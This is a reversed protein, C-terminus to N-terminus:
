EPLTTRSPEVLSLQKLAETAAQTEAEKKTLGSGEGWLKGNIEVTAKFTRQHSPGTEAVIQYIATLGSAHLKEQLAGKANAPDPDDSLSALRPRILRLICPQVAELGGDLYIAAFIAELANALNSPRTRGGMSEEAKGLLLHTGLDLSLAMEVLSTRNVLHARIKSLPGESLTPNQDYLYHSVVMQLVADGLFELRENHPLMEKREHGRSSHTLALELLTPNRFIYGISTELASSM